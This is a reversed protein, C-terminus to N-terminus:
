TRTTTSRAPPSTCGSIRSPGTQYWRAIAPDGSRVMALELRAGSTLASEVIAQKAPYAGVVTVRVGVHGERAPAGPTVQVDHERLRERWTQEIAAASMVELVDRPVEVDFILSPATAEGALREIQLASALMGTVLAAAAFWGLRLGAHM